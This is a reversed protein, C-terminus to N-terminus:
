ISLIYNVLNVVDLVNILGDANTDSACLQQDTAGGGFIINVLVVIDIVNVLEDGNIDGVNCASEEITISQAYINVLDEKGSSRKDNWYVIYSNNTADYLNIQPYTQSFQENCVAIGNSEYVFQNNAIVQLYIDDDPAFNEGADNRSDQWAIIYSGDLTAYVFPSKQNFSSSAIHTESGVILSEGNISKCYVDYYIGSRYDEWCVMLEDLSDNYAISPNAQDSSEVAIPVGSSDSLLNGNFDIMQGYIDNGDGRYDKWVIYFGNNTKAIGKFQQNASNSCLDIGDEWGSIVNGDYDVAIAKVSSGMFSETDYVIIIGTNPIEDIARVNKDAMFDSVVSVPSSFVPNGVNDFKQLFINYIAFFQQESYAFYLNDNSAYVMDFKNVSQPDGTQSILTGMDDGLISLNQDLLQYKVGPGELSGEADPFGIMINEDLSEAVPFDAKDNNSLKNGNISQNQDWGSFIKQGYNYQGFVGSRQDVWYLLAEDDGLYLSKPKYSYESITNGGLGSVYLAGNDGFSNNDGSLLLHQAYISLSGSQFDGWVIFAGDDGDSRVLPNMQLGAATSVAYGNDIFHPDGNPNISQIFIDDFNEQNRDDMWTIVIGDVDSKGLRAQTQDGTQEDCVAVAADWELGNELTLRQMFLDNLAPTQTNYRTDSWIVYVSNSDSKVRPKYQRAEEVSVEIGNESSLINGDMDVFQAYIDETDPNNRNDDWVIISASESYYTVKAHAQEGQGSYVMTGGVSADSWLTNCDSDIRQAYIDKGLGNDNNRNDSWVMIASGSSAIEISVGAHEYGSTNLPVGIGSNVVGEPSLHTGYVHGFTGTGTSQDNWIAFAGGAGDGSMNPSVQPGSVTTLPVGMQDWVIMGDSQIYQAYFDGDDPEDRYDKWMVYAGGNNDSILIPDEQRGPANVILVGSPDWLVDGNEDIKQAYIDRGGYRTDSWAFIMEGNEGVDGTRLWEVHNGQRVPLGNDEWDFDAFSFTVILFLFKFKNLM